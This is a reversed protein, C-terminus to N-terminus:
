RRYIYTGTRGLLSIDCYWYRYVFWVVKNGSVFLSSNCEIKCKVKKIMVYSLRNKLVEFLFSNQRHKWQFCSTEGLGLDLLLVRSKSASCWTVCLVVRFIIILFQTWPQVPMSDMSLTWVICMLHLIDTLLVAPFTNPLCYETLFETDIYMYQTELFFDWNLTHCYMYQCLDMVSSAFRVQSTCASWLYVCNGLGVSLVNQSSWDVLNLYFDDQLEPADLVKFPIKSIKRM